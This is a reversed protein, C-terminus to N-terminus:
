QRQRDSDASSAQVSAEPFCRVASFDANGGHYESIDDQWLVKMAAIYDKVQSWHHDFDGGLITSEEPNWGAGIDFLFRGGSAVWLAKRM